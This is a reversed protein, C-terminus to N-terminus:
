HADRRRTDLCPHLGERLITGPSTVSRTPQDPTPRVVYLKFEIVRCKGNSGRQSGRRAMQTCHVKTEVFWAWLKAYECPSPIRFPRIAVGFPDQPGTPVRKASAPCLDVDSTGRRSNTPLRKMGTAGSSGEAADWRIATDAGPDSPVISAPGGGGGIPVDRVPCSTRSEKVQGTESQLVHRM